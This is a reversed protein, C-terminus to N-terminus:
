LYEGTDTWKMINDNITARCGLKMVQNPSCHGFAETKFIPFSVSKQIINVFTKIEQQDGCGVLQGIIMAEVKNLIGSQLWQNWMRLMRPINEQIDEIFIVKGSFDPLWKTGILNTIVSFCGGFLTGSITQRSHESLELQGSWTNNKLRDCFKKIEESEPHWYTTGPMPGHIGPWKAQSYLAAHLASTDSFGILSKPKSKKIQEWPLESILDSAGYGGRASLVYDISEDILSEGLENVRDQQTASYWPENLNFPPAKFIVNFGISQLEKVRDLLIDTPSPSSPQVIQITWKKSKRM